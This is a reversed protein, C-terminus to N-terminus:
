AKRRHGYQFGLATILIQFNRNNFIRVGSALPRSPPSTPLHSSTSPPFQEGEEESEDLLLRLPIPPNVKLKIKGGRPRKYSM